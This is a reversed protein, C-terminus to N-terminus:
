DSREQVGEQGHSESLLRSSYIKAAPSNAIELEEGVGGGYERFDLTLYCRPAVRLVEAPEFPLFPLLCSVPRAKM